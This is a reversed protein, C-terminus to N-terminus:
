DDNMAGYNSMITLVAEKYQGKSIELSIRNFADGFENQADYGKIKCYEHALTRFEKYCINIENLANKGYPQVNNLNDLATQRKTKFNMTKM